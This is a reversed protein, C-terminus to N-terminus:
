HHVTSSHVRDQHLTGQLDDETSYHVKHSTGQTYSVPALEEGTRTILQGLQENSLVTDRPYTTDEILQTVDQLTLSQLWMSTYTDHLQSVETGAVNRRTADQM